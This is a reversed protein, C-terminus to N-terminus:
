TLLLDNLENLEYEFDIRSPHYLREIARKRWLLMFPVTRLLGRMRKQRRTEELSAETLSYVTVFFKGIPTATCWSAECQCKILGHHDHFNKFQIIPTRFPFESSIFMNLKVGNMLEVSWQYLSDDSTTVNRVVDRYGHVCHELEKMIRRTYKHDGM